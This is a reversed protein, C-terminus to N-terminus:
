AQKVFVNFSPSGVYYRAPVKGGPYHLNNKNNFTMRVHNHEGDLLVNLRNATVEISRMWSEEHYHAESQFIRTPSLLTVKMYERGVAAPASSSGSRSLLRELNSQEGRTLPRPMCEGAVTLFCEINGAQIDHLTTAGALLDNLRERRAPASFRDTLMGTVDGAIGGATAMGINSNTESGFKLEIDVLRGGHDGIVDAGVRNDDAASRLTIEERPCDCRRAMADILYDHYVRLANEIFTVDRGRFMLLRHNDPIDVIASAAGQYDRNVMTNECIKSCTYVDPM